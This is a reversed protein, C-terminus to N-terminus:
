QCLSFCAYRRAHSSRVHMYGCTQKSQRDRAFIEKVMKFRLIIFRMKFFIKKRKIDTFKFYLFFDSRLFKVRYLCVSKLNPIDM